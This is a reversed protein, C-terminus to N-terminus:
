QAQLTAGARAIAARLCCRHESSLSLSDATCRAYEVHWEPPDNGNRKLAFRVRGSLQTRRRIINQMCDVEM